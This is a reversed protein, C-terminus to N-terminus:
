ELTQKGYSNYQRNSLACKTTSQFWFDKELRNQKEIRCNRIANMCISKKKSFPWKLIRMKFNRDVGYLGHFANKKGGIQVILAQSYTQPLASHGHGFACTNLVFCYLLFPFKLIFINHIAIEVGFHNVPLEDTYTAYCQGYWNSEVAKWQTGNSELWIWKLTQVTKNTNARISDWQGNNACIASHVAAGANWM